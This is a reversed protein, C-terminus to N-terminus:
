SRGTASATRRMASSRAERHASTSRTLRAARGTSSHTPPWGSRRLRGRRAERAGQRPRPAHRRVRRRNYRLEDDPARGRDRSDLTRDGDGVRHSQIRAPTECRPARRDHAYCRASRFSAFTAIARRSRTFSVPKWRAASSSSVGKENREGVEEDVLVAIDCAKRQPSARQM